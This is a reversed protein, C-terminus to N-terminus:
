FVTEGFNPFININTYRWKLPQKKVNTELHM